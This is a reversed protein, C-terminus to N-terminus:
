EDQNVFGSFESVLAQALQQGLGVSGGQRSISLDIVTRPHQGGLRNRFEALEDEEYDSFDFSLSLFVRADGQEVIGQPIGINEQWCGNNRVVFRRLEDQDIRSASIVAVNRMALAEPVSRPDSWRLPNFVHLDM